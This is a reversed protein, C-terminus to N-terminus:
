SARRMALERQLFIGKVAGRDEAARIARAVRFEVNADAGRADIYTDGRGGGMPTVVGGGGPFMTLREPGAEGVSFVGGAWVPGGHQRTGGVFPPTAGAQGLGFLGGLGGFISGFLGGFSFGGGGGGGSSEGGFIAGMLPKVVLLYWVMQALDGLVNRFFQKWSTGLGAVQRGLDMLANFTIGQLHQKMEFWLENVAQLPPLQQSIAGPLRALFAETERQEEPTPLFGSKVKPPDKFLEMELARSAKRAEEEVKRLGAASMMLMDALSMQKKAAKETAGALDELGGGGGTGAAQEAQHQWGLLLNIAEQVRENTNALNSAAQADSMARLFDAAGAPGRSLAEIARFFAGFFQLQDEMIGRLGFFGIVLRNIFSDTIEDGAKSAGGAAVVFEASLATLTPINATLIQNAFGVLVGKLRTLNDNFEEAARATKADIVLGLREAEQWAAELGARGQNLLPIMEAGARGFVKLAAATKEAGDEAKSFRDAMEFFVTKIDEGGRKNEVMWKALFQLGKGLQETDVGALDAAHALGSLTEVAIGTRQSLKHLSDAVNIQHKVLTALGAAAAASAGAVATGIIKFSREIEKASGFALKKMDNVGKTFSASSLGLAVFIETIKIAM